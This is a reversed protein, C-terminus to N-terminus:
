PQLAASSGGTEGCTALCWDLNLHFKLGLPALVDMGGDNGFRSLVVSRTRCFNFVEKGVQEWKAMIWIQIADASGKFNFHEMSNSEQM